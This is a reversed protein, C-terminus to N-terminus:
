LSCLWRTISALRADNALDTANEIVGSEFLSWIGMEM